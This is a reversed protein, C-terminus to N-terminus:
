GRVVCLLKYIIIQNRGSFDYGYLMNDPAVTTPETCYEECGTISYEGGPITCAATQIGNAAYEDTHTGVSCVIGIVSGGSGSVVNSIWGGKMPTKTNAATFDYGSLGGPEICYPECGSFGSNVVFGRISVMRTLSIPLWQLHVHMCLCHLSLQRAILAYYYKTTFM